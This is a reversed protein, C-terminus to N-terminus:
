LSGGQHWPDRRQEQGRLQAPTVQQWPPVSRCPLHLQQPSHGTEPFHREGWRGGSSQAFTAPALPHILRARPGGGLLQCSPSSSCSWCMRPFGWSQSREQGRRWGPPGQSPSAALAPVPSGAPGPPLEVKSPIMSPFEDKSIASLGAGPQEAGELGGPFPWHSCAGGPGPCRLLLPLVLPCIARQLRPLSDLRSNAGHSGHVPGPAPVEPPQGPSSPAPSSGLLSQLAATPSSM